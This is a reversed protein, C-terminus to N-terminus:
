RDADIRSMAAAAIQREGAFTLAQEAERLLIWRAEEVEHDHDATDGDVYRFLYFTVIKRIRRGKRQYWYRVDGLKGVLEVNVGTEERVERAAAEEATEGDDLHGKPLGLVTRGDPARRRPVIVVVEATDPDDGRVVLGGASFEEEVPPM